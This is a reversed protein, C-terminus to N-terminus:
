RKKKQSVRSPVSPVNLELVVNHHVLRDIAAATTMPDKFIMEWKSFTLNSIILMSGREYREFYHRSTKEDFFLIEAVQTASWGRSLAFVGKIRDAHRQDRLSRHFEELETTKEKSLTYDKM